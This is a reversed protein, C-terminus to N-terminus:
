TEIPIIEFEMTHLDGFIYTPPLDSVSGVAGPNCVITQTGKVNKIYKIVPIHTHGCCVLDYDGTTAMGRAYHPYHVIFIRKDALMIDADQGYYHIVSGEKQSLKTLTYLDGTNNGHVVHIPLGYPQLTALTSPAVVDGCHLIVETGRQKAQHTALKLLPINDHSDSLICIKM